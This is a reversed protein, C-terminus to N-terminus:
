ESEKPFSIQFDNEKQKFNNFFCQENHYIKMCSIGCLFPNELTKYRLHDVNKRRNIFFLTYKKKLQCDCIKCKLKIAM